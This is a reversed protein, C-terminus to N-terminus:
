RVAAPNVFVLRHQQHVLVGIPSADVLARYREESEVLVQQLRYQESVDSFVLVM